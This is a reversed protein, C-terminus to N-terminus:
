RENTDCITTIITFTDKTTRTEREVSFRAAVLSVDEVHFSDASAVHRKSARPAPLITENGTLGSIRDEIRVTGGEIFIKREFTYPSKSKKFILVNKLLRILSKGFLFSVARLGIHKFPTSDLEKHPVLSGIITIPSLTSPLPSLASTLPYLHSPLPALHSSPPISPLDIQWDKSWWHSVYQRKGSKVIWGFDLAFADGKAVRLCGGKRAALFVDLGSDLRAHVYGALPLVDLFPLSTCSTSGGAGAPCGGERLPASGPSAGAPCEGRVSPAPCPYAGTPGGAERLSAKELETIARAISHGIYHCLYRDDVARFFHTPSALDAYLTQLLDAATRKQEATGDNLYRAIGYPVVYDTNRANLMGPGRGPLAIVRHLFALARDASARFDADGTADVLDWLCDITVSLYGADPGDYEWYWGEDTQLALTRAKQHAFAADPVLDPRIKRVWALAALGAVQQNAAKPEFRSSLQRAAKRLGRDVDGAACVGAAVIKAVALASFALPPYGQEWPYYEEFAGHRAARRNWFCCAGAAISRAYDESLPADPLAKQALLVAYGGQQLIISSFDRMRYHWFNRDFCGFAPSNADRCCQSLIRPLFEALLQRFSATM